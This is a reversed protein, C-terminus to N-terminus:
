FSAATLGNAAITLSGSSHVRFRAISSRGLLILVPDRSSLGAIATLGFCFVSHAYSLPGIAVGARFALVM